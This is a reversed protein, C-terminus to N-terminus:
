NESSVLRMLFRYMIKVPNRGGGKKKTDGHESLVALAMKLSSLHIDKWAVFILIPLRELVLTNRFALDNEFWKRCMWSEIVSPDHSEPTSYAQRLNDHLVPASLRKKIM